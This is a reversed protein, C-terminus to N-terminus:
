GHLALKNKVYSDPLEFPSLVTNEVLEASLTSEGQAFIYVEIRVTILEFHIFNGFIFASIKLCTFYFIPSWKKLIPNPM